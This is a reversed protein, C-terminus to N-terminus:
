APPEHPHCRASTRRAAARSRPPPLLLEANCRWPALEGHTWARLTIAIPCARRGDPLPRCPRPLELGVWLHPPYTALWDATARLARAEDRGAHAPAASGPQAGVLAGITALLSMVVPRPM